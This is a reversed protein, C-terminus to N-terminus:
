YGIIFLLLGGALLPGGVLPRMACWVIAIVLLGCGLGCSCSTICLLMSVVGGVMRELLGGFFPIYSLIDGVYEAGSAIPEFCCFLAFWALVCGGARYAWTTLSLEDKMEQIAKEMTMEKPWARIFGTANCGWATKTPYPEVVGSSGVLGFASVTTAGTKYYSVRVCGLRDSKCSSIYKPQEDHWAVTKRSIESIINDTNKALTFSGSFNALSIQEDAKFEKIADEDALTFAGAYLNSTYAMQMGLQAKHGDGRDPVEPNHNPKGKIIFDPCGNSQVYMPTEKFEHSNYWTDSWSMQYYYESQESTNTRDSNQSGGDELAGPEIRNRGRSDVTLIMNESRRRSKRIISSSADKAEELLSSHSDSTSSESERVQSELAKEEKVSTEEQKELASESSESSPKGKTEICQYMEIKQGAAVAPFSVYEELGPLNFSTAPTFVESKNESIPCSFFAFKGEVSAADACDAAIATLEAELIFNMNCAVERENWAIVMLAAPFLVCGVCMILLSACKSKAGASEKLEADVGPAVDAADYDEGKTDDM